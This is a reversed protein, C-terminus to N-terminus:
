KTIEKAHQKGQRKEITKQGRHRLLSNAVAIFLGIGIFVYPMTFLKGATTQPSFDGYGVTSLTIVTFYFSDVWQWKEILHYFVAGFSIYIGLIILLGTVIKSRRAASMHKVDM